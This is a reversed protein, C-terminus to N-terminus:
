GSPECVVVPLERDTKHQYGAFAANVEIAKQWLAEREAGQATRAIMPRVEPGRQVRVRPEASLNLYWDPHRAAGGNSAVLLLNEGWPVAALPTVREAGSRRGITTLLVLEISRASAGIRGGSWRYLRAHLGTVVRQGQRMIGM